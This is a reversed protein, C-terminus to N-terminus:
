ADMGEAGRFIGRRRQREDLPEAPLAAQRAIARDSGRSARGAFLWLASRGPLEASFLDTRGDYLRAGALGQARASLRGRAAFASAWARRALAQDQRRRAGRAFLPRRRP